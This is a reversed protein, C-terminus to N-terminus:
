SMVPRFVRDIELWHLVLDSRDVISHSTSSAGVIEIVNTTSFGMDEKQVRLALALLERYRELAPHVRYRWVPIAFRDRIM